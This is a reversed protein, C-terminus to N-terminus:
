LLRTGMRTPIIRFPYFYSTFTVDQGWVRPSSGICLQVSIISLCKDGCAHPHDAKFSKSSLTIASTGVRTPIIRKRMTHSSLSPEQGWVRPSSGIDNKCGGEAGFKDGCAHPHDRQQSSSTSTTKRTGVRTPIIGNATGSHDDTKDQGWVRPSSGRM